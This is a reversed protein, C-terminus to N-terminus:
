TSLFNYFYKWFLYIKNKGFVCKEAKEKCFKELVCKMEKKGRILPILKNNWTFTFCILNIVAFYASIIDADTLANNTDANSNSYLVHITILHWANLRCRVFKSEKVHSQLFLPGYILIENYLTSCSTFNMYFTPDNGDDCIVKRKIKTGSGYIISISFHVIRWKERRANLKEAMQHQTRAFRICPFSKEASFQPYTIGYMYIPDYETNIWM